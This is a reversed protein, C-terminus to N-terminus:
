MNTLLSDWESSFEEELLGIDVLRVIVKGQQLQQEVSRTVMYACVHEHIPKCNSVM